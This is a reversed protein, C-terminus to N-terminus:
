DAVRWRGSKRRKVKGKEKLRKLSRLTESVRLDLALAIATPGIIQGTLHKIIRQDEPHPDPPKREGNWSGGRELVRNKAAIDWQRELGKAKAVIQPTIWKRKLGAASILDDRELFGEWTIGSADVARCLTAEVTDALWPKDNPPDSLGPTTRRKVSALAPSGIERKRADSRARESGKGSGKGKKGKGQPGPAIRARGKGKGKAM